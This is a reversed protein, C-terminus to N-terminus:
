PLEMTEAVAIEALAAALHDGVAGGTVALLDAVLLPAHRAVAAPDAPPAEDTMQHVGLAGTLLLALVGVDLGPLWGANSRACRVLVAQVDEGALGDPHAQELLLRLVAGLVLGVQEAPLLALDGGAEGLADPDRARVAEVARITAQTIARPVPPTM